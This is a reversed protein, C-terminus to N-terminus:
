KPWLLSRAFQAARNVLVIAIVGTVLMSLYDSLYALYKHVTYLSVGTFLIGALISTIGFILLGPQIDKPSEGGPRLALSVTNFSKQRLNPEDLLHVLMWYGDLKVFPFFNFLAVATNIISFYLIIPYSFIVWFVFAVCSILIQFFIGASATVLKKEISDFRWSDSIDCYVVPQMYLFMMGIKHVNGGFHKCTIAHAFEHFAIMVLMAVYLGFWEVASFNFNQVANSVLSPMSIILIMPLSILLLYISIAGRSFILHVLNIHRNLFNNPDMLHIRISGPDSLMSLIKRARSQPVIGIVDIDSDEGTLNYERFKELMAEVEPATFGLFNNECLEVNSLSGDLSQLFNAERAGLRFYKKSSIDRVISYQGISPDIVINSNRVVYNPRM